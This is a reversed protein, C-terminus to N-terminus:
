NIKMNGCPSNHGKEFSFSSLDLSLCFGDSDHTIRMLDTDLNKILEDYGTSHLQDSPPQNGGWATLTM